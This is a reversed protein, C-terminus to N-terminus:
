SRALRPVSTRGGPFSWRPFLFCRAYLLRDADLTVALVPGHDDRADLHTLTADRTVRASARALVEGSDLSLTAEGSTELPIAVLLRSAHPAIAGLLGPAFSWELRIVGSSALPTPTAPIAARPSM